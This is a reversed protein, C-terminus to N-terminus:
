NSSKSGHTWVHKHPWRTVQHTIHPVINSNLLVKTGKNLEVNTTCAAYSNLYDLECMVKVIPQGLGLSTVALWSTSATSVTSM